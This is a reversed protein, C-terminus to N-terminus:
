KFNLEKGLKPLKEDMAWYEDAADFVPNNENEGAETM